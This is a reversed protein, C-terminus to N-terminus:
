TKAAAAAALAAAGVAVGAADLTVRGDREAVAALARWTDGEGRRAVAALDVTLTAQWTRFPLGAHVDAALPHWPTSPCNIAPAAGAAGAVLLADEWAVPLLAHSPALAAILSAAEHLTPGAPPTADVIRARAGATARAFVEGGGAGAHWVIVYRTDDRWAALLAAGPGHHLSTPPVIAVCPTAWGRVAAAEFVSGAAVLRGSAAADALGFPPRGGLVREWRPGGCWEGCTTAAAVAARAAPSVWYVPVHVCGRGDLATLVADLTVFSSGDPPAAILACGGADVATAAATAATSVADHWTPAPAVPPGAPPAYILVDANALATADVPPAAPAADATLTGCSLYVVSAGRGGEDELRWAADGPCAGPRGASVATAVLSGAPLPIRQGHTVRTVRALAARATAVPFRGSRVAVGAATITTTPSPSVDEGDDDDHVHCRSTALEAVLAAAADVSASPAFVPPPAPALGRNRGSGGGDVLGLAWPLGLLAAPRTALVADVARTDAAEFLPTRFCCCESADGDGGGACAPADLLLRAGRLTVVVSALAGDALASARM